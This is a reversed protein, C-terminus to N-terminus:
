VSVEWWSAKEICKVAEPNQDNQIPRTVIPTKLSITTTGKRRKKERQHGFEQRREIEIGPQTIL